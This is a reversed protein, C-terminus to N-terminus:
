VSTAEKGSVIKDAPAAQRDSGIQQTSGAQLQYLERYAANDELLKKHTSFAAKGNDLWIVGDTESFLYLRHSILFIISDPVLERLYEFVEKETTQDLASFPDDLILVPRPHALTRALALRKQQGGSLRLGTEGTITDGGQPMQRVEEDLCVAKLYKWLDKNDGLLVNNKITDSLLEPEHGLYGVVSNRVDPSLASFETGDFTLSGSYPQECLFARGLTSKGCAVPGTIGIIEGPFAEFDLDQFLPTSNEYSFGLDKAKVCGPQSEPLPADKKGATMFPLIRKWSVQAKQVANFLKAAHSSKVALKTFCSLFATFAAIDWAAWGNGMVNRSGFSFIFLVSAMSILKYLPPLAAVPLDARVSAKEYDALHTEYDENRENECGYIRYTIANQIRDLTAANLRGVSEKSAAGTKQVIVKMREAIVYSVPPFIICLLALRWDYLLLMVIYSVMAVGTDFVETTFKRIGESCTDVDSLAKTMVTGTSTNKLEQTDIHVLNNYYTQKMNRNINNAFRRVYLRKIFRSSQVILIAMFYGAALKAMDSFHSQGKQIFYLRQVLQGEFWPGAMLGINYILGSITITALIGKQMSFYSLVHDPHKCIPTSTKKSM